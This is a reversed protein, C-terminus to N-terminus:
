AYYYQGGEDDRFVGAECALIPCSWDQGGLDKLQVADRDLLKFMFIKGAIGMHICVESHPLPACGWEGPKIPVKEPKGLLTLQGDRIMLGKGM